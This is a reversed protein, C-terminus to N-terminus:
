FQVFRAALDIEVAGAHGHHSRVLRLIEESAYDGAKGNGPTEVFAIFVQASVMQDPRAIQNFRRKAQQSGAGFGVGQADQAIQFDGLLRVSM